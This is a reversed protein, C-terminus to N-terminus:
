EERNRRLRLWLQPHLLRKSGPKKYARRKARRQRRPSGSEGEVPTVGLLEFHELLSRRSVVRVSVSPASLGTNPLWLLDVDQHRERFELHSRKDRSAVAATVLGDLRFRLGYVYGLPIPPSSGEIEDLKDVGSGWIARQLDRWQHLDDRAPGAIRAREAAVTFNSDLLPQADHMLNNLYEEVLGRDDDQSAVLSPSDLYFIIERGGRSM